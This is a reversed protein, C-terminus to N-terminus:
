KKDELDKAGVGPVPIELLHKVLHNRGPYLAGCIHCTDVPARRRMVFLGVVLLTVTTILIMVGEM